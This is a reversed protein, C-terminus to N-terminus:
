YVPTVWRTDGRGQNRENEITEVTGASDPQRSTSNPLLVRLGAQSSREDLKVPSSREEDNKCLIFFVSGKCDFVEGTGAFDARRAADGSPSLRLGPDMGPRDAGPACCM